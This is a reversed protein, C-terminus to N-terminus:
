RHPTNGKGVLLAEPHRELFDALTSVSRAADKLEAFTHALDTGSRPDNGLLALTGNLQEAATNLRVLLPGVQQQADQTMRETNALTRDLSQLSRKLDPSAAISDAHRVMNRVDGILEGLPLAALKNLFTGAARTLEALDSGGVTPLEPYPQGLVLQAPAAGDVFDFEIVRSGTLLNGTGLTARLGKAVLHEFMRNTQAVAESGNSHLWAEGPLFIRHPAIEITVPIRLSDSAPDYEISIGSVRGIPLGRLEVVTGDVSVGSLSGPFHLRYSVRLPDAADEAAKADAYLRFSSGAPSPAGAMAESPTDFVIGGTLLTQVSQTGLQLGQANVSFQFGASLWFRTASHIL